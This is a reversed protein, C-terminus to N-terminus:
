PHASFTDRIDAGNVGDKGIHAIAILIHNHRFYFLSLLLFLLTNLAQHIHYSIFLIFCELTPVMRFPFIHIMWSFSQAENYFIQFLIKLNQLSKSSIFLRKSGLSSDTSFSRFLWFPLLFYSTVFQENIALAWSEWSEVRLYDSSIIEM